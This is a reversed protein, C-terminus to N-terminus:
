QKKTYRNKTKNVLIDSKNSIQISTSKINTNTRMNAFMAICPSTLAHILDVKITNNLLAISNKTNKLDEKNRGQPFLIEFSGEICM